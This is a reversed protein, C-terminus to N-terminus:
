GGSVVEFIEVYDGKNLVSEQITIEGNVSVVVTVPNIKLTNLLKKITTNEPIEKNCKKNEKEIFLSIKM